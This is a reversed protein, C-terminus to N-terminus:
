WRYLRWYSWNFRDRENEHLTIISEDIPRNEELAVWYDGVIIIALLILVGATILLVILDRYNKIM